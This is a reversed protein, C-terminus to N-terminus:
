AGQRRAAKAKNVNAVGLAELYKLYITKIYVHERLRKTYEDEIVEIADQISAITTFSRSGELRKILRHNDVEPFTHCYGIAAFFETQRNTQVSRFEDYFSLLAQAETIMEATVTVSGDKIAAYKNRTLTRFITWIKTDFNYRLNKNLFDLLRGYNKNGQAAYSEIYDVIKWNTQNINMQICEKIGIGAEVMYYVPLGDELCVAFRAQGDIIEMRENVLIPYRILGVKKISERVKAKRAGDIPRNGTMVTFKEYDKTEYVNNIIKDVMVEKCM